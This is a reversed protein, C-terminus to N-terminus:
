PLQTATASASGDEIVSIEGSTGISLTAKTSSAFPRKQPTFIINKKAGVYKGSPSEFYLTEFNRMTSGTLSIRDTGGLLVPGDSSPLFKYIEANKDNQWIVGYGKANEDEPNAAYNRAKTILTSLIEADAKAPSAGSTRSFIVVSAGILLLAITTAILFEILTFSKIKDQSM